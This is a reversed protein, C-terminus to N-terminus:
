APGIFIPFCNYLYNYVLSGAESVKNTTASGEGGSTTKSALEKLTILPKGSSTRSFRPASRLRTCLASHLAAM